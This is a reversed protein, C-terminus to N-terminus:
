AILKNYFASLAAVGIVIDIPTCIKTEVLYNAAAAGILLDSCNPGVRSLQTVIRWFANSGVLAALLAQAVSKQHHAAALGLCGVTLGTCVCQNMNISTKFRDYWGSLTTKWNLEAAKVILGCAISSIIASQAFLSSIWRLAVEDHYHVLRWIALKLCSPKTLYLILPGSAFALPLGMALIIPSLRKKKVAPELIPYLKSPTQERQEPAVYAM